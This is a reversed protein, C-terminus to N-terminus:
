LKAFSLPKITAILDMTRTDHIEKCEKEHNIKDEKLCKETCYTVSTCHGCVSMDFDELHCKHCVDLKSGDRLESTEKEKKVKEDIEDLTILMSDWIPRTWM